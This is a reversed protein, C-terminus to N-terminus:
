NVSAGLCMKTDGVAFLVISEGQDWKGELYQRRDRSERGAFTVSIFPTTISM